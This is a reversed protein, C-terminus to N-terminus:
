SSSFQVFFGSLIATPSHGELVKLTSQYRRWDIAIPWVKRGSQHLATVHDGHDHHFKAHHRVDCMPGYLPSVTLIEFKEFDLIAAAAM